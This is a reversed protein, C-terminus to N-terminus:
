ENHIEGTKKWFLTGVSLVIMPAIFLAAIPSQHHWLLSLTGMFVFSFFELSVCSLPLLLPTIMGINKSFKFWIILFMTIIFMVCYIYLYTIGAYLLYINLNWLIFTPVM